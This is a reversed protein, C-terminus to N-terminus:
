ERHIKSRQCKLQESGSILFSHKTQHLKGCGKTAKIIMKMFDAIGGIDQQFDSVKIVEEGNQIEPYLM